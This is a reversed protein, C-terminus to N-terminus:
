ILGRYKRLFWEIALVCILFLLVYKWDILSVSNEKHKQISQYRTDELLQQILAAENGAFFSAGGSASALELLPAVAANLFQQEVDFNLITFRGSRSLKEGLVQVTFNYKGAALTSLDVEYNANKLVLPATSEKGTTENKLKIVLQGRRDFEYNKTVYTAQLKVGSNGYYFSASTIELRSRKKNSALYQVLKGFFDDYREFSKSNVYEQARWKWLDEGFFVGERSGNEEITALLPNTTTVGGIKQHLLVHHPATILPDGFLGLLPPYEEFGIADVLFTSYSTNLAPVFYETQRGFEHRYRSQVGNLFNWDTKSGTITLRNKRQKEMLEYIPRFSTNPQYIIVLQYDELTRVQAPKLIKVSSRGNSVISRKIAGLDPHVMASVLLVNTKQDIVEVAFDKQNNITNKEESLPRLRATYSQVGVKSAPLNFQVVSSHKSPSFSVPTSYVKSKGLFVEFQTSVKQEGSYFLIAEVPFENKLYAYKNVNLQKIKLDTHTITDGLIIPYIPQQYTNGMYQYDDGYTQNGDTILIIPAIQQRYIGDLGKLAQAINTQPKDFNFATTDQLAAGFGFFSVDFRASLAPNEKLLSVLARAQQEQQLHRISSSNDVAVALVPKELYYSQQKFKPNILLLLLGFISLFRLCAFLINKKLPRKSKYAYQFLAIGLALIAAGISLLITQTNMPCTISTVGNRLCEGM